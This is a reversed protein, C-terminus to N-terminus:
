AGALVATAWADFAGWYFCARVDQRQAQGCELLQAINRAYIHLQAWRSLQTPTSGDDDTDATSSPQAAAAGLEEPHVHVVCQSVLSQLREISRPGPDHQACAVAQRVLGDVAAALM